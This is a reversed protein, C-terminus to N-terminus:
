AFVRKLRFPVGLSRSMNLLRKVSADSPSRARTAVVIEHVPGLCSFLILYDDRQVDVVVTSLQVFRGGPEDVSKSYLGTASDNPKYVETITFPISGYKVSFDSNLM